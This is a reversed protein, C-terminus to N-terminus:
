CIVHPSGTDGWYTCSGLDQPVVHARTLSKSRPFESQRAEQIQSLEFGAPKQDAQGLGAGM